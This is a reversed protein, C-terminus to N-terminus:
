MKISEVQTEINGYLRVFEKIEKIRDNIVEEASRDMYIIKKIKIMRQRAKLSM